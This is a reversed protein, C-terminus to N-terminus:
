EHIEIRKRFVSVQFRLFIQHCRNSRQWLWLLRLWYWSHVSVSLWVYLFAPSSYLKSYSWYCTKTNGIGRQCEVQHPARRHEIRWDRTRSDPHWCRAAGPGPTSGSWTYQGTGSPGWGTPCARSAWQPGAESWTTGPTRSARSVRSAQHRRGQPQKRRCLRLICCRCLQRM